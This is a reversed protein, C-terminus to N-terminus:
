HIKTFLLLATFGLGLEFVGRLGIELNSQMLTIRGLYGSSWGPDFVCSMVILSGNWTLM